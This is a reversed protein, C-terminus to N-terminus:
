KNATATLAVPQNHVTLLKQQLYKHLVVSQFKSFKFHLQVWVRHGSSRHHTQFLTHWDQEM